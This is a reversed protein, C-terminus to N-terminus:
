VGIVLGRQPKLGRHSNSDACIVAAVREIFSHDFFQPLDPMLKSVEASVIARDRVVIWVICALNAFRYLISRYLDANQDAAASNASRNGSVLKTAYSCRETAIRIGCM